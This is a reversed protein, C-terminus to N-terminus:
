NSEGEKNFSFNIRYQSLNYLLNELHTKSALYPIRKAKRYYDIAQFLGEKKYIETAIHEKVSLLYYGKPFRKNFVKFYDEYGIHKVTDKIITSHVIRYNTNWNRKNFDDIKSQALVETPTVGFVLVNNRTFGQWKYVEKYNLIIFSKEFDTASVKTQATLNAFLLLAIILKFNKM